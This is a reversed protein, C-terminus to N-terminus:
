GTSNGCTLARALSGASVRQCGSPNTLRGNAGPGGERGRRPRRSRLERYQEPPVLEHPSLSPPHSGPANRADWVNM